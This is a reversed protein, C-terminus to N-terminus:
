KKQNSFDLKPNEIEKIIFSIQEMLIEIDDLDFVTKDELQLFSVKEKMYKLPFIGSMVRDGMGNKLFMYAYIILQIAKDYKDKQSLEPLINEKLKIGGQNFNGTKYDIVRVIGDVMDVRDIFGGFTVSLDDKIYNASIKEEIHMLILESETSLIKDQLLVKEVMKEVVRKVIINKGKLANGYLLMNNFETDVVEKRKKEIKDFLPVSMVEGLFPRYLKEICSHVINGLTVFGAIEELETKENIKLIYKKYFDVPNRVYTTLSSPSIRQEWNKIESLVYDTKKYNLDVENKKLDSLAMTKHSIKHPSEFELQSLFRSKEGKGLSETDSNYLFSVKKSRQILHYFHYAYVADNELFTNLGIRNRFEFPIFTNEQRGLPLVGENVSTIVIREFDLLRTELMGLIQLGRQPEGVFNLSETNMIQQYLMYLVRFTSVLDQKELLERLQSFVTEFHYLCEKEFNSFTIEKKALVIFEQLAVILDIPKKFKQFIIAGEEFNLEEVEFFNKNRKNVKENIDELYKEFYFSFNNQRLVSLLDKYYFVQNFKEYNRYMELVSKFFYAIPLNQLGVGMTINVFSVNPPLANLIAPLLQEDALVLAMKSLDEETSHSLLESVIKAQGVNGSVEIIEFDKSHSFSDGVFKFGKEKGKEERLFKGAEQIKDEIYYRDADWLYEAKNKDKLFNILAKEAKTLANFGCFYFFCSNEKEFLEKSLFAERYIMGRFGKKQSILHERLAKYFKQAMEWFGFYNQVVQNQGIELNQSWLKVREDSSLATFLVQSDVMETEIDDFDKLLTPLWKIFEEFPEPEEVIKTYVKYSEFWLPVGSITILGTIDALLEEISLLLPLVGSFNERKLFESRFFQKPRNGPVVIAVNELSTKAEIIEDVCEAIFTKM